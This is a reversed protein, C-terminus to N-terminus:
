DLQARHIEAAKKGQLYAIVVVVLLAILIGGYILITNDIGDIIQDEPHGQHGSAPLVSYILILLLSLRSRM